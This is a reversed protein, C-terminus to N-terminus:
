YYEKSLNQRHGPHLKKKWLMVPQSRARFDGGVRVSFDHPHRCEPAWKGNEKARKRQPTGNWELGNTENRAFGIKSKPAARERGGGIGSWKRPKKAM